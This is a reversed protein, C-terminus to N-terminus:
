VFLSKTNSDESKKKDDTSDRTNDDRQGGNGKSFDMTIGLAESITNELKIQRLVKLWHLGRQACEIKLTSLGARLKSIAAETEKEDDLLARGSGICDFKQYRHIERAFERPEISTIAGSAVALLNFLQRVPLVIRLGFENQIPKTQSDELNMAGRFGGYNTKEFRGNISYSSLNTASAIDHDLQDFFTHTAEGPTKSDLLEISDDKGIEAAIPDSGLRVDGSRIPREGANEPEDLSLLSGPTDTKLALVFMAHKIMKRVLSETLQDRNLIVEGTAHIWTAGFHQSPRSKKYFHCYMREPIFSSKYSGTGNFSDHPHEDYIWIGVERGERDLEIGNVIRNQTSTQNRDMSCDLREREIVQLKLPVIQGPTPDVFVFKLITDGVTATESLMLRQMEFWSMSGAVDCQNPDNAWSEFLEDSEMSFDFCKELDRKPRRKLNWGFTHDIPNSFANIGKGIILDRYLDIPRKALPKNRYMDRARRTMLESGLLATDGSIEPPFDGRRSTQGMRYGRGDNSFPVSSASTKKGIFPLRSLLNKIM